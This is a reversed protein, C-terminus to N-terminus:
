YVDSFTTIAPELLNIDTWIKAISKDEGDNVSIGLGGRAPLKYDSVALADLVRAADWVGQLINSFSMQKLYPTADLTRSSFRGGTAAIGNIQHSCVETIDGPEVFFKIFLRVKYPSIFTYNIPRLKPYTRSTSVSYSDARDKLASCLSVWVPFFPRNAHISTDVGTWSNKSRLNTQLFYQIVKSVTARADYLSM